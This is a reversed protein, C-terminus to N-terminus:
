VKKEWELNIKYDRFGISTFLRVTILQDEFYGDRCGLIFKLSQYSNPYLIDEFSYLMHVLDGNPLKTTVGNKSRLNHYERNTIIGIRYESPILSKFSKNHM